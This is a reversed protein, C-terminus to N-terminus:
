KGSRGASAASRFEEDTLCQSQHSRYTACVYGDFYDPVSIVPPQGASAMDYILLGLLMGLIVLLAAKWLPMPARDYENMM